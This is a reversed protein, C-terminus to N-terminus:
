RASTGNESPAPPRRTQKHRSPQQAGPRAPARRLDVVGVEVCAADAGVPSFSSKRWPSNDVLEEQELEQQQWDVDVERVPAHLATNFRDATVSEHDLWSSVDLPKASSTRIRSTMYDNRYNKAAGAFAKAPVQLHADTLKAFGNGADTLASTLKSEVLVQEQVGDVLHQLSDNLEEFGHQAHGPDFYHAALDERVKDAAQRAATIHQFQLRQVSDPDLVTRSERLQQEAIQAAKESASTVAKQAGAEFELRGGIETLVENLRNSLATLRAEGVRHGSGLLQDFKADAAGHAWQVVHAVAQAPLHDASNETFTKVQEAVAAHFEAINKTGAIVDDLERQLAAGADADNEARQSIRQFVADARAISSKVLSQAARDDLGTDRVTQAIGDQLRPMAEVFRGELGLKANLTSEASRPRGTAYSPQQSRGGSRNGSVAETRLQNLHRASASAAEAAFSAKFQAEPDQAFEQAYDRGFDEEPSSHRVSVTTNPGFSSLAPGHSERWANVAEDYKASAAKAASDQAVADAIKRDLNKVLSSYADKYSYSSNVDVKGAGDLRGYTGQFLQKQNARFEDLAQDVIKEDASRESVWQKRAAQATRAAGEALEVQKAALQTRSSLTNELLERQQSWKQEASRTVWDHADPRSVLPAFAEDFSQDFAQRFRASDPLMQEYEDLGDHSENRGRGVIRQYIEDADPRRSELKALVSLQQAYKADLQTQEQEFREDGSTGSLDPESERALDWSHGPADLATITEARLKALSALLVPSTDENRRLRDLVGDYGKTVAEATWQRRTDEPVSDVHGIQLYDLQKRLENRMESALRQGASSLQERQWDAYRSGSWEDTRQKLGDELVTMADGVQKHVGIWQDSKGVEVLNEYKDDWRGGTSVRNNEALGHHFSDFKRSVTDTWAKSAQEILDDSHGKDRWIQTLQQVDGEVKAENEASLRQLKEAGTEAPPEQHVEQVQQGAEDEHHGTGTGAAEAARAAEQATAAREAEAREAAAAAERQESLETLRSGFADGHGKEHDLWSSVDRSGDGFLDDYKTVTETRYAAGLDQAHEKEIDFASDLRDFRDAARSVVSVLSQEENFRDEATGLLRQSVTEWARDTGGVHDWRDPAAQHVQDYASRFDEDFKTRVREIGDDELHGGGAFDEEWDDFANDLDRGATNLHHEYRAEYELLKPVRDAFMADRKDQWAQERDRDEVMPGDFHQHFADALEKAFASRVRDLGADSVDRGPLWENNDRPAAVPTNEDDTGTGDHGGTATSPRGVGEDYTLGHGANNAPRERNLGLEARTEARSGVTSDFRDTYGSGLERDLAILKPAWDTLQDHKLDQWRDNRDFDDEFPRDGDPRAFPKGFVSEYESTIRKEIADDAPSHEEGSLARGAAIETLLRDHQTIGKPVEDRLLEDFRDSAASALESSDTHAATEDFAKRLEPEFQKWADDRQANPREDGLRGLLERRPAVVSHADFADDFRQKLLDRQQEWVAESHLRDPLERALTDLSDHFANVHDVATDYRDDPTGFEKDFAAKVDAKFDSLVKDQGGPSLDDRNLGLRGRLIERDTLASQFHEEAENAVHETKATYDFRDTFEQQIEVQADEWQEHLPPGSPEVHESPVPEVHHVVPTSHNDHQQAESHGHADPPAESHERVTHPAAESEPSREVRSPGRRDGSSETRVDPVRPETRVESSETPVHPLSPQDRDDGPDFDHDSDSDSRYDSESDSRYESDYDSDSHRDFDSDSDRDSNLDRDSNHSPALPVDDPNPHVLEPRESEFQTGGDYPRSEGTGPDVIEARQPQPGHAVVPEGPQHVPVTKVSIQQDFDSAGDDFSRADDDRSDGSFMGALQDHLSPEPEEHPTPTSSERIPLPPNNTPQNTDRTTGVPPAQEPSEASQRPDQPAAITSPESSEQRIPVPTEIPAEQLPPPTVTRDGSPIVQEPSSIPSSPHQVSPISEPSPLPASSREVPPVSEPSSLPASTRQVPPVSEPSALPQSSREVPPISEPSSVPASTRQVPPVSEPSALPQSTRQVPPVSEPSSLPTSSREVPPVSEPSSEPQPTRQVQPTSIPAQPEIHDTTQPQPEHSVSEFGPLGQVSGNGRSTEVTQVPNGGQEHTVIGSPSTGTSTATTTSLPDRSVPSTPPLTSPESERQPLNNSQENLGQTPDNEGHGLQQTQPTDRLDPGQSVTSNTVDSRTDIPDNSSLSPESSHSDGLSSVSSFSHISDGDISSVDDSDGDESDGDTSGEHISGGNISGGNVSGGRISGGNVSGGNTGGHTSGNNVSFNDPDNDPGGHTSLNTPVNGFEDDGGNFKGGFEGGPNGEDFDPAKFNYGGPKPEPGSGGGFAHAAHGLAGGIAGGAAGLGVNADGGNIANSIETVVAGNIAGQAMHSGLSNGIDEGLGRIAGIGMAGGLAGGLAGLGASEVTQKWNWPKGYKLYQFLQIGSDMATMMAAAEAASKLVQKLLQSAISEMVVEAAAEVAPIAASGFVSEALEAITVATIILNSMMMLKAYQINLATEMSLKSLADTGQAMQPLAGQLNDIFAGFQEGTPGSLGELMTQKADNLIDTFGGLASTTETWIDSVAAFDGEDEKPWSGGALVGIIDGLWTPLDISFM